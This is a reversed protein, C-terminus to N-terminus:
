FTFVYKIYHSTPTNKKLVPSKFAPTNIANPCFQPELCFAHHKGYIAGSKGVFKELSNTTYLQLAPLDTYIDMTVDKTCSQARAAHESRLIFNHDIGGLRTVREDRSLISDQLPKAATFDFPTDKVSLIEGIPILNEDCPTFFDANITLLHNYIVGSNEGNLNFFTHNTPSWLTDQDSTAFYEILLEKGFLSYVVKLQLNGPYGEDGDPSLLSLVLKESQVEAEFFQKDFGVLGGHLHNSGDNCNLKYHKKNLEFEGNAIRNACRGITAGFYTNYKVYQETSANGLCIDRESGDIFLKIYQIKAGFDTVGVSIGDGSLEYLHVPKNKYTDFLSKKIM